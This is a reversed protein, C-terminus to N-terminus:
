QALFSYAKWTVGGRGDRLVSWLTFAGSQRRFKVHSGRADGVGGVDPFEGLTVYWQWDLSEDAPTTSGDPECLNYPGSSAVPASTGLGCITRDGAPLPPTDLSTGGSCTDENSPDRRVDGIPPNLNTVYLQAVGAAAAQADSVVIPVRKYAMATQGEASAIAVVVLEAFLRCEFTPNGKAAAIAFALADQVEPSNPVAYSITAVSEPDVGPSTGIAVVGPVTGAAAILTHPDQLYAQSLCPVTVDSANPLCGIWTVTLGARNLPNVVLASLDVQDGPQVDATLSSGLHSQIALIRLDRVRYQPEFGTNCAALAAAALLLASRRM